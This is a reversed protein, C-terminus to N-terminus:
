VLYACGNWFARVRRRRIGGLDVHLEDPLGHSGAAKVFLAIDGAPLSHFRDTDAPASTFAEIFRTGGCCATSSAWVWLRGGRELVFERAEPSAVLKMEIEMM